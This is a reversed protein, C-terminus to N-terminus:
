TTPKSKARAEREKAFRAQAEEMRQVETRVADLCRALTDATERLAQTREAFTPTKADM